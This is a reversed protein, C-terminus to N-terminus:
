SLSSTSTTALPRRTESDGPINNPIDQSTADSAQNEGTKGRNPIADHSEEAEETCRNEGNEIREAEPKTIPQSPNYIEALNFQKLAQFDNGVVSM